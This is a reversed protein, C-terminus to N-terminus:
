FYGINSLYVCIGIIVGIGALSTFANWIATGTSLSRAGEIDGHMKRHQVQSSLLVGIIGLLLGCCFVNFISWIMYDNIGSAEPPPVHVLHSIVSQPQQVCVINHGAPQQVYTYHSPAVASAPVTETSNAAMPNSFNYSPPPNHYLPLQVNETKVHESGESYM